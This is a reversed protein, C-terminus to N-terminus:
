FGDRRNQRKERRQQRKERFNERMQRDNERFNKMATKHQQRCSKLAERSNASSVCNEFANIMRKKKQIRQLIKNKVDQLNKGQGDQQAFAPGQFFFTAFM